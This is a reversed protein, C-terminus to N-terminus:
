SHRGSPMILTFRSTSLWFIRIRIRTSDFSDLRIKQLRGLVGELKIMAAAARKLQRVTTKESSKGKMVTYVHMYEYRKV